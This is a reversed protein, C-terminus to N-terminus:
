CSAQKTAGPASPRCTTTTRCTSAARARSRSSCSPATKGTTAKKIAEIDNFPVRVFGELLPTFPARYKETGAATVTAMTRGHFANECVIIEYAGDRKEKGWKRALKILGEVAEAGSNCFFVKDMEASECLLEALKVQPMTYYYNSTHM